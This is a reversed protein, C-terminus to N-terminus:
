LSHTIPIPPKVPNSATDTHTSTNLNVLLCHPLSLRSLSHDADEGRMTESNM